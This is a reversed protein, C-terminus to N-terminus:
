EMSCWDFRYCYFHLDSVDDYQGSLCSENGLAHLMSTITRDEGDIGFRHKKQHQFEVESHLIRICENSISQRLRDSLLRWHIDLKSLGVLTMTMGASTM